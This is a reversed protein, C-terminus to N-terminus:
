SRETGTGEYVTREMKCSRRYTRELPSIPTFLITVYSEKLRIWVCSLCYRYMWDQRWQKENLQRQKTIHSLSVPSNLCLSPQRRPHQATYDSLLKCVNWLHKSGGDDLRFTPLSRGSQLNSSDEPNYCRTTQYFNVLTESTRATEMM